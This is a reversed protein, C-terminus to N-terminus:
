GRSRNSTRPTCCHSRRSAITSRHGAIRGHFTTSRRGACLHRTWGTGRAASGRMRSFLGYGAPRQDPCDNRRRLMRRKVRFVLPTGDRGLPDTGVLELLCHHAFAMSVAIRYWSGFGFQPRMRVAFSMADFALEMIKSGCDPTRDGRVFAVFRRHLPSRLAAGIMVMGSFARGVAPPQAVPLGFLPFTTGRSTASAREDLLLVGFFGSTESCTRQDRLHGTSDAQSARHRILGHQM